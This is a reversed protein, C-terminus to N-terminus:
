RRDSAAVREIWRALEERPALPTPVYHMPLGELDRPIKVENIEGSSILVPLVLVSDRARAALAEVTDRLDAIAAARVPPPADDRLLGVRFEHALGARRLADGATAGINQLWHEVDPLDTPGHAVLVVPRSRDRAGLSSWRAALAAGLEPAADLASTVRTPVRPPCHRACHADHEAHHRAHHTPPAAYSQIQRYHGGSSSVMMPVVVISDAGAVLLTDVAQDWGATAAEPGMLFALAVPGGPWRVQAMSERVRANWGADGGHAVVLLGTQAAAPQALLLLGLLAGIRTVMPDGVHYLRVM